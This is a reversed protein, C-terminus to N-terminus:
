ANTEEDEDDTLSSDPLPMGRERVFSKLRALKTRAQESKKCLNRLDSETMRIELTHPEGSVASLTDLKMTTVPIMGLISERADDFIPRLDSVFSVSQLRSGLSSAVRDAKLARELGESRVDGTAIIRRALEDLKEADLSASLTTNVSEHIRDELDDRESRITRSWRSFISVFRKFAERQSTDFVPSSLKELEAAGIFKDRSEAIRSLADSFQDAPVESLLVADRQFLKDAFLQSVAWWTDMYPSSLVFHAM